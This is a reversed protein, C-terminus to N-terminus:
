PRCAPPRSSPESCSSGGRNLPGGAPRIGRAIISKHLGFAGGFFCYGPLAPESSRPSGAVRGSGACTRRGPIGIGARAARAAAPPDSRRRHHGRSRGPVRPREGAGARGPCARAAGAIGLREAEDRHGARALFETLSRAHREWLAVDRQQKVALREHYWDSALLAERTFLARVEPHNRTKARSQGHAMIHLLAKLPPCADEIRATRSTPRRWGSSRRSSTTSGTPSSRRIRPRPSSSRRPSCRRPTTSCGGSSPTCSSPPSATASGAPSCRRARRVRLGRAEGPPGGRDAAQPDREHPFLRCWIEPILLSIDHDVRYRPGIFGAASSFGAYGTLLMSVLANNLDATAALANFPGKTLAGESGAGTTSPSTGTLSCVYDM